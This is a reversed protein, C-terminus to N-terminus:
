KKGGIFSGNDLTKSKLLEGSQADVAIGCITTTGIDLGIVNM